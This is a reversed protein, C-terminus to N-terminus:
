PDSKPNEPKHGGTTAIVMEQPQVLPDVCMLITIELLETAREPKGKFPVKTMKEMLSSECVDYSDDCSELVGDAQLKAIYKKNIYGLRCHWM